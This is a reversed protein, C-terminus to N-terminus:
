KSELRRRPRRETSQSAKDVAEWTATDRLARIENETLVVAPELTIKGSPETTVKYSERPSFSALNVRKRSDLTVFSTAVQIDERICSAVPKHTNRSGWCGM